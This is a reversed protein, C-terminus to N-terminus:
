YVHYRTGYTAGEGPTPDLPTCGYKSTLVVRGDGLAGALELFDLTDERWGPDCVTSPARTFTARGATGFTTDLAGTAAHYRAVRVVTGVGFGFVIRGARDAFVGAPPEPLDITVATRAGTADFRLVVRQQEVTTRTVVAVGLGPLPVLAEIDGPAVGLAISGGGFAAIPAGTALDRRVLNSGVIVTVAGPQVVHQAIATDAGIPAFAPDATMAATLRLLRFTPTASHDVTEILVGGAPDAGVFANPYEGAAPTFSPAGPGSLHFARDGSAPYAYLLRADHTVGVRCLAVAEGGHSDVSTTDLFVTSTGIFRFYASGHGFHDHAFDACVPNGLNYSYTPLATSAPWVIPTPADLARADIPADIIPADIIPADIIPADIPADIIPADVMADDVIPDADDIPAADIVAGDIAPGPGPDDCGVILAMALVFSSRM